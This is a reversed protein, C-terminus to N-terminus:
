EPLTIREDNLKQKNEADKKKMLLEGLANLLDSFLKLSESTALAIKGGAMELLLYSFVVSQYRSVEGLAKLEPSNKSVDILAPLTKIYLQKYFPNGIEENILEKHFSELEALLSKGISSRPIQKSEPQQKLDEYLIELFQAFQNAKEDNKKGHNLQSALSEFDPRERKLEAYKQLYVEALQLELLFASPNRHCLEEYYPPLKM